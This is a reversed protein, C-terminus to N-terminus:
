RKPLAYAIVYDGRKPSQRAGGANIVIYQKGTAPSVYSMPGAQSGVPLRAKWIEKGTATDFARLYFDQTGAFFLLGSQTALSPGLTPMGIPIPLGLPIGLPGTDKVTGVPVQWVIKRTKLDIATMTGFPPKQCPIGLQSLFRQRMAGYPTGVMPVAGMEIGSANKPMKDRPIQYNSLGLRMDNVFMYNSTPDVSVSGWNMGGLSGPMQLAHDLGPPTYVGQHRMSKFNIRCLLQDFPTAGWMDSEKLTANGISPMGTSFPQTPSYREGPLNGQPVPLEKVEALPKGTERNLMFIEGQKSIQVLAPDTGGSANPVDYLLPQAPLDFDWLDHHTTQFHWRVKGTRAEVAVISSAYKEEEATRHGGWFDPTVNGTPMYVLDLKPDYAMASWVNASGRTYTQGAPPLKTINPNGSDWAWALEGTHVDFARVVGSPEDTSWNDAVRGGVVVLNGAVLPTSTQQYWGPKVEGMGASLDVTGKNGFDACPQGNDANIAILRADLTPLLLRRPCAGAVANNVDLSVGSVPVAAQAGPEAYYGLGRCRQWSPATAKADFRWREKGSDVDLAIVKSYPTCVYLTNGVQLPTNQDEAGAGTSQPIDGTHATWAVQLDKVNDKTIQDLAAFRDGSTSGGWHLWDKRAQGAAVPQVAPAAETQAIVPTPVFMYAGAAAMVVALVAAVGLSGRGVRAGGGARALSPYALAVLLSLVGFAFLRSVLPWFALGADALAWIVTLVMVAAYLWVGSTRCRFMLVASALLGLGALLFYPSGGLTLLYAGGIGLFLGFVLVLM